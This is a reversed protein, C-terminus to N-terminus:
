KVDGELRKRFLIPITIALVFVIVAVLTDQWNAKVFSAGLFNYAFTGPIIGFLTGAFFAKFRVKSVGAVYSILDFPFIPILRVLLVYLLGKHELQRQVKGMNGQWQKKALNKGMTRALSFSVVAGATAGIVTLVTGWLAGFALGGALSLISAPFLILPRVTYLAVYLVPAIFGFSLIWLRIDYPRLQLYSQNFWLLLAIVILLVVIKIWVGTKFM